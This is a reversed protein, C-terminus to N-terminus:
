FIGTMIEWLELLHKELEEKTWSVTFFLYLPYILRNETLTFKELCSLAPQQLQLYPLFPTSFFGEDEM